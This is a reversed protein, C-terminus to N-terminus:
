WGRLSFGSGRRQAGGPRDAGDRRRRPRVALLFGRRRGPEANMKMRAASGRVARRANGALISALNPPMVGSGDTFNAEERTSLPQLMVTEFTRCILAALSIGTFNEMSSWGGFTHSGAGAYPARLQLCCSPKAVAEAASVTFPYWVGNVSIVRRSSFTRFVVPKFRREGPARAAASADLLPSSSAPLEGTLSMILPPPQYDPMNFRDRKQANGRRICSIGM